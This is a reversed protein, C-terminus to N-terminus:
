NLNTSTTLRDMIFMALRKKQEQLKRDQDKFQKTAIGSIAGGGVASFEDLDEEDLKDARDIRDKAQGSLKRDLSNIKMSYDQFEKLNELTELLKYEGNRYVITELIAVDEEEEDEEGEYYDGEYSSSALGTRQSIATDAHTYPESYFDLPHFSGARTSNDGGGIFGGGMSRAGNSQRGWENINKM